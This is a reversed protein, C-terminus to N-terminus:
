RVRARAPWGGAAVGLTRTLGPRLSLGLSLTLPPLPIIVVSRGRKKEIWFSFIKAGNLQAASM